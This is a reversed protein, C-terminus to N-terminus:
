ECIIPFDIYFVTGEGVESEFSIEGHMVEVMTKCINLGLGTGGKQRADSSDAQTFKSFIKSKFEEPIGHGNDKISIRVSNGRQTASIVVEGNEPSFKTANSLLNTLVQIFRNKDTNFLTCKALNNVFKYHVKFREAYPKNMLIAEEIIQAIDTIEYSFEMKGAAIKEIDLIDNILNILRLSNNHAVDLLDKVKGTVTPFVGSLLLGLSGRIATLPTRLEHSVVSVFENKMKEVEKQTTIDSILLIILDESNFFFENVDVEIHFFEENKKIGLIQYKGSSHKINSFGGDTNGFIVPSTLSNVNMGIAQKPTYGFMEKIAPNVSQIVGDKNATILVDSINNHILSLKQENDRKEKFFEVFKNFANYLKGIETDGNVKPITVTLDNNALRLSKDVLEEIPTVVTAWIIYRFLLVILLAAFAVPWLGEFMAEIVKLKIDDIYAGTGIIWGWPKFEEVYTVKSYVRRKDGAPKGWRYTVYAHGYKKPQEIMQRGFKYGNHDIFTTVDTGIFRKDPHYIMIGNDKSIWFYDDKEFRVDKLVNIVERQAQKLSKRHISVLYNEDGIIQTAFDVVYHLRDTREKYIVSYITKYRSVAFVSIIISGFFLLLLIFLKRIGIRCLDSKLQTNFRDVIKNLM